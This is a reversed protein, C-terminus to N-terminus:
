KWRADGDPSIEFCQDGRIMTTFGHAQLSKRLYSSEKEYRHQDYTENSTPVHFVASQLTAGVTLGNQKARYFFEWHEGFAKLPDMWGGMTGWVSRTEAIFFQSTFDRKVFPADYKGEEVMTLTDGDVEFHGSWISVNESYVGLNELLSFYEKLDITKEIWRPPIYDPVIHPGGLIDLDSNAIQERMWEIDTREEHVFDDDHLVFYDTDVRDLLENRGRSVGSDFPLVVYEDVLDGYQDMIADRYPEKSDDAVLVPCGAYGQASISGLLRELAQQREFTKIILSVGNM